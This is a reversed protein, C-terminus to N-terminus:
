WFTCDVGWLFCASLLIGFRFDYKSGTEEMIELKYVIGEPLNVDVRLFHKGNTVLLVANSICSQVVCPMIEGSVM